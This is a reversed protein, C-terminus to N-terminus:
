KKEEKKEDSETKVDKEDLFKQAFNVRPDDSKQEQESGSSDFNERYKTWTFIM